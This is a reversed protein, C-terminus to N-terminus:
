DLPFPWPEALALGRFHRVLIVRGFPVATLCATDPAQLLLDAGSCQLAAAARDSAYTPPLLATPVYAGFASFGLGLFFTRFTLSKLEPEDHTSLVQLSRSDTFFVSVPLDARVKIAVEYAEQVLYEEEAAEDRQLRDEFEEVENAMRADDTMGAEAGKKELSADSLSHKDDLTPLTNEADTM